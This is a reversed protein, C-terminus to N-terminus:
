QIVWCVLVNNFEAFDNISISDPALLKIQNGVNYVVPFSVHSLGEDQKKHSCYLFIEFPIVVSCVMLHQIEPYYSLQVNLM